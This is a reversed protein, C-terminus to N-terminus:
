CKLVILYRGFALCQTKFFQRFKQRGALRGVQRIVNLLSSALHHSVHVGFKVVIVFEGTPHAKEPESLHRHGRSAIIIM